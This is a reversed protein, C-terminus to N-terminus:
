RHGLPVASVFAQAPPSGVPPPEAPTTMAQRGPPLPATARLPDAAGRGALRDRPARRAEDAARSVLNPGVHWVGDVQHPRRALEDALADALQTPSGEWGDRGLTRVWAVILQALGTRNRRTAQRLRESM